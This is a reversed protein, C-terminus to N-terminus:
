GFEGEAVAGFDGFAVFFVGEVVGVLDLVHESKAVSQIVVLGHVQAIELDSKVVGAM